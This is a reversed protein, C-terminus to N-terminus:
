AQRAQAMRRHSEIKELWQAMRSGVDHGAHHVKRRGEAAIERRASDNNLMWRAKAILEETSRFYMAEREEAFLTSLDYSYQSLMAVGHAPIEFNRRTYTDRNLKSLFCLAIKAGCLTRSYNIGMAERVPFQSALPSDSKLRRLAPEWGAGFLNVRLGARSLADLSETRGDDEYHGVFAVDCEYESPIEDPPLPHDKAPIFYSRLLHVEKAGWNRLDADNANRYAFHIDCHRVSAKFHRWRIPNANPAFPDDNTYQCITVGPLVARLKRVTKATIPQANYLWIVDPRTEVAAQVLTENIKWIAPGSLVNFQIRRSLARREASARDLSDTQLRNYGFPIVTQGLRELAQACAEHYWPWRWEGVLM